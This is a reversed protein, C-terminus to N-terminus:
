SLEVALETSNLQIADTSRRHAPKVCGYITSLDTILKLLGDEADWASLLRILPYSNTEVTLLKDRQDFFNQFKLFCALQAM